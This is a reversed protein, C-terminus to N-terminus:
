KVNEKRQKIKWLFKCFDQWLLKVTAIKLRKKKYFKLFADEVEYETFLYEGLKESLYKLIEEKRKIKQHAKTEIQRVREKTIGMDKGIAELSMEERLKLVKKERQTLDSVFSYFVGEKLERRLITQIINNKM